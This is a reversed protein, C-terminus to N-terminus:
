ETGGMKQLMEFFGNNLAIGVVKTDDPLSGRLAENFAKWAAEACGEAESFDVNAHHLTERAASLAMEAQRAAELLDALVQKEPQAENGTERIQWPAPPESKQRSPDIAFKQTPLQSLTIAPTEIADVIHEEDRMRVYKKVLAPYEDEGKANGEQTMHLALNKMRMNNPFTMLVLRGDRVVIKTDSGKFKQETISLSM